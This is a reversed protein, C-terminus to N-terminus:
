AFQGDSRVYFGAIGTHYFSPQPIFKYGPFDINVLPDNITM